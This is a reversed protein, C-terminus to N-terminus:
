DVIIDGKDAGAEGGGGGGGKVGGTEARVYLRGIRVTQQQIFSRSLRRSIFRKKKKKTTDKKKNGIQM